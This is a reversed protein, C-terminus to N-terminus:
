RKTALEWFAIASAAAVNLSDVNNSMPIKVIYDSKILLEDSIGTSETGFVVVTKKEKLSSIEDDNLNYAEDSLAMSVIKYGNEKLKDIYETGEVITYPVSFINGMAVRVARRYLPDATGKTFILANVNLATASRVIAGVNAPNMVNELLAVKINKKDSIIEDITLVPKRKMAALMGLTLGYGTLDRMVSESASFLKIEECITNDASADSKNYVNYVSADFLKSHEVFLSEMEYGYNVAREIVVPTEAIFLGEAPEYIHKLQNESMGTYIKLAADELNDVDTLILRDYIVDKLEDNEGGYLCSMVFFSDDNLLKKLFYPDGEWLNLSLVESKNIWKLTGEDCTTAFYDGEADATYLFVREDGYNESSYDVIGRRKIQDKSLEIGAEEKVERIFCDDIHENKEQKGGIGLWKGHSGDNKNISRYLMLYSDNYEIYGLTTYKM